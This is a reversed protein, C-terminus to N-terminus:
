PLGSINRPGLSVLDLSQCYELLGVSIDGVVKLLHLNLKFLSCGQQHFRFFLSLHSPAYQINHNRVAPRRYSKVMNIKEPVISSFFILM